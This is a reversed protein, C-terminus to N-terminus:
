SSPSGRRETSAAIDMDERVPDLLDGVVVIRLFSMFLHVNM